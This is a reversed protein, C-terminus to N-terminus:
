GRVPGCSAAVTSVSFRRRSLTTGAISRSVPARTSTPPKVAELSSKESTTALLSGSNTPTTTSSLASSRSTTKRETNMGILAAIMFRSDIPAASPKTVSIKWSPWPAPSSPMPVPGISDKTGTSMNAMTKPSLM